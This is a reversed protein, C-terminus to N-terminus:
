NGIAIFYYATGMNTGTQTVSQVPAYQVLSTYTSDVMAGTTATGTGTIDCQWKHAISPASRIFYVPYAAKSILSSSSAQTIKVYHGGGTPVYLTGQSGMVNGTYFFRSGRGTGNYDWFLTDGGKYGVRMFVTSTNSDVVAGAYATTDAYTWSQHLLDTSVLGTTVGPAVFRAIQGSVPAVFVNCTEADSTASALAKTYVRFTDSAAPATVSPKASNYRNDYFQIYTPTAAVYPTFRAAAYDAPIFVIKDVTTLGIKRPTFAFATSSYAGTLTIYGSVIRKNGITGHWPAAISTPSRYIGVTGGYANACMFAILSALVIFKKFM